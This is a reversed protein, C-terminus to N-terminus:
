EGVHLADKLHWLSLLMDTFLYAHRKCCPETETIKVALCLHKSCPRCIVRRFVAFHDVAKDM